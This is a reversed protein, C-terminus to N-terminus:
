PRMAKVIAIFLDDKFKQESPIEKYPLMNPHTLAQRDLVPGHRWGRELKDLVWSEHMREPTAGPQLAEEVGAMVGDREAQSFEDWDPAVPDGLLRQLQQNAAHTVSAVADLSWPGDLSTM